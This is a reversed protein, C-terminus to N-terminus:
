FLQALDLAELLASRAGEVDRILAPQQLESHHIQEPWHRRIV